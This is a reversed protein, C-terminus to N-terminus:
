EAFERAVSRMLERVVEKKLGDRVARDLFERKKTEVDQYIKWTEPGRASGRESIYELLINRYESRLLAAKGNLSEPM